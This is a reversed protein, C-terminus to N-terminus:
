RDKLIFYYIAVSILGIVAAIFFPVELSINYAIGGVVPGLALAFSQVSQSVGLIKGQMEKPAQNSIV